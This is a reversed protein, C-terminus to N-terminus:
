NQIDFPCSTSPKKKASQEDANALEENGLARHAQARLMFIEQCDLHYAKEFYVNLEKLADAARGLKLYARGRRLSFTLLIDRQTPKCPDYSAANECILEYDKRLHEEDSQYAALAREFDRRKYALDGMRLVGNAVNWWHPPLRVGKKAYAIGKEFDDWASYQTPDLHLETILAPSTLLTEGRHIFLHALNNYLNQLDYDLSGSLSDSKEILRIAALYDSRIGSFHKLPDSMFRFRAREVYRPWYNPDLEIAKTFDTLAKDFFFTRELQDSTRLSLEAFIRRRLDYSSYQDPQKNVKEDAQELKEDLQQRIEEPTRRDPPLGPQGHVLGPAALCVVFCAALVRAMRFNLSQTM